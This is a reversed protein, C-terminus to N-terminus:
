KIEEFLNKKLKDLARKKRQRINASNTEHASCLFDMANDSLHQTNDICYEDAYTLLIHRDKEHLENLALKLKQM